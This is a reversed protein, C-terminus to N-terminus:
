TRLPPIPQCGEKRLFEVIQTLHEPHLSVGAMPHAKGDESYWLGFQKFGFREYYGVSAEVACIKICIGPPVEFRALRSLLLLRGIGQRQYDPHILGYCLWAEDKTQSHGGCAVVRGDLEVVLMSQDEKTLREEYDKEVETPFRGPANLRYIEMCTMSDGQEWGRVKFGKPLPEATLKEVEVNPLIIPSILRWRSLKNFIAQQVRAARGQRLFSNRLYNEALTHLFVFFLAGYIFPQPGDWFSNAAGM